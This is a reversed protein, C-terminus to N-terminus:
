FLRNLSSNGIKGLITSFNKSLSGYIEMDAILSSINYSGALYMNLDKGKSYINIDNAIGDKVKITGSISEFDGTKLPTIM